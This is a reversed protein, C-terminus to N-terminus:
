VAGHGERGVRSISLGDLVKGKTEEDLLVGIVSSLFKEHSRLRNNESSLYEDLREPTIIDPHTRIEPSLIQLRPNMFIIKQCVDAPDVSLGWAGLYEILLRTKMSNLALIDEHLKEGGNHRSHSRQLWGANTASLTGSWNKCEIVYLRKATIVILDIERKRNSYPDPIRKAAFSRCGRFSYNEDVIRRLVDEAERGALIQGEEKIPTLDTGRIRHWADFHEKWSAM